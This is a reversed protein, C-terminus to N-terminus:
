TRKQSINKGWLSPSVCIKRCKLLIISELSPFHLNFVVNKIRTARLEKQQFYSFGEIVIGDTTCSFFRILNEITAFYNQALHVVLIERRTM